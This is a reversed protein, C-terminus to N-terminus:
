VDGVAHLGAWQYPKAFPLEDMSAVESLAGELAPHGHLKTAVWAALEERTLRIMDRQVQSLAACVSASEGNVAQLYREVLVATAAQPIKWLAGIVYRVGSSLMAAPLGIYEAAIEARAIGSECSGMVVSRCGRLDLQEFVRSFSVRGEAHGGGLDLASDAVQEPNFHGHCAFVTDRAPRAAMSALLQLWSVQAEEQLANGFTQRLQPLLLSYWPVEGGIVFRLGEGRQAPAARAAHNELFLGLTQGYSIAACHEILYKGQLRIAHFPVANMQLRPFIKLHKGPLFRLVPELTPGLLEAYHSLLSELARNKATADGAAKQQKEFDDHIRRLQEEGFPLAFPAALGSAMDLLVLTGATTGLHFLLFLTDPLRLKLTQEVISDSGQSQILSHDLASSQQLYARRASNFQGIHSLYDEFRAPVTNLTQYYLARNRRFEAIDSVAGSRAAALETVLETAERPGNWEVEALVGAPSQAFAAVQIANASFSRFIQQKAARGLPFPCQVTMHGSLFLRGDHYANLASKLKEPAGPLVAHDGPHEPQHQALTGSQRVITDGLERASLAQWYLTYAFFPELQEFALAQEFQHQAEDLEGAARLACGLLRRLHGIETDLRHHVADQWALRFQEASEDHRGQGAHLLGLFRRAVIRYYVHADTNCAAIVEGLSAVDNISFPKDQDGVADELWSRTLNFYLHDACPNCDRYAFPRSWQAYYLTHTKLKRELAQRVPAYATGLATANKLYGVYATELSNLALDDAFATQADAYLECALFHYTTGRSQTVLQFIFTLWYAPVRYWRVWLGLENCWASFDENNACLQNFEALVGPLLPSIKSERFGNEELLRLLRALFGRHHAPLLSGDPAPCTQM